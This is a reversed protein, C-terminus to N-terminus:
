FDVVDIFGISPEGDLMQKFRASVGEGRRWDLYKKYHERSEWAELLVVEDADECNQYTGAFVCGEFARTEPMISQIFAAVESGTGPKAKAQLVMKVTM